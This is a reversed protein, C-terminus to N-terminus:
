YNCKVYFMCFYSFRSVDPLGSVLKCFGFMSVSYNALCECFRAVAMGHYDQDMDIINVTYKGMLPSLASKIKKFDDENECEFLCDILNNWNEEEVLQKLWEHRKQSETGYMFQLVRKMRDNKKLAPSRLFRKNATKNSAIAQAAFYEQFYNHRFKVLSDHSPYLNDTVDESCDKNTVLKLIGMAFATAFDDESTKAELQRRTYESIFDCTETFLTDELSKEFSAQGFKILFLEFDVYKAQSPCNQFQLCNLILRTLYSRRHIYFRVNDIAKKTIDSVLTHTFLILLSPCMDIQNIFNGEDLILNTICIAHKETYTHGGVSSKDKNGDDVTGETEESSKRTNTGDFDQYCNFVNAVYPTLNKSTFPSIRINVQSKPFSPTAHINNKSICLSRVNQYEQFLHSVRLVDDITVEGPDKRKSNLTSEDEPSQNLEHVEDFVFFCKKNKMINRIVDTSGTEGLNIQKDIANAITMNRHLGKLKVYLIMMNEDLNAACVSSCVYQMFAKRGYYGNDLFVFSREKGFLTTIM